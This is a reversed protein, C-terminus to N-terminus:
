LPKIVNMMATGRSNYLGYVTRELFSLPIVQFFICNVMTFYVRKTDNM